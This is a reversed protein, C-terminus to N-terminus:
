TYFGVRENVKLLITECVSKKSKCEYLLSRYYNCDVRSQYNEEIFLKYEYDKVDNKKNIIYFTYITGKKIIIEILEEYSDVKYYYVKNSIEEGAIKEDTVAIAIKRSIWPNLEWEMDMKKDEENPEIWVFVINQNEKKFCSIINAQVEVDFTFDIIGDSVMYM